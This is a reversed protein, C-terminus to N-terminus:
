LTEEIKLLPETYDALINFVSKLHENKATYENKTCSFITGFFTTCNHLDKIRLTDEANVKGSSLKSTNSKEISMIKGKNQM